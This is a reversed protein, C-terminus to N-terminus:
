PAAQGRVISAFLENASSLVSSRDAMQFQSAPENLADALFTDLVPVLQTVDRETGGAKRDVLEQLARRVARDVAGQDLLRPLDM